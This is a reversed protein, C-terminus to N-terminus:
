RLGFSTRILTKSKGLTNANEEFSHSYRDLNLFGCPVGYAILSSKIDVIASVLFFVLSIQLHANGSCEIEFVEIM